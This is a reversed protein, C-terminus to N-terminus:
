EDRESGWGYTPSQPWRKPSDEWKEQRGYRTLDLLARFEEVPVMPLRRREAALADLTRTAAKENPRVRPVAGLSGGGSGQDDSLSCGVCLETPRLAGM